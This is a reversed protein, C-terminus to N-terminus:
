MRETLDVVRGIEELSPSGERVRRGKLDALGRLPKGCFVVQAPYVYIALPEVGHQERLTKELYPRFAALTSRLTAIDPNLGALDPATYEPYQATFSSMLATGFPVVGLQLLRLMETGPVGARDFPVIEASYRGGSLRALDHKWFPEERRTYQSLDALGGVVRLHYPAAQPKAQPWAATAVLGGACCCALAACHRLLRLPRSLRFM